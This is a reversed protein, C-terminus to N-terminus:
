PPSSAVSTNHTPSSTAYTCYFVDPIDRHPVIIVNFLGFIVFTFSLINITVMLLPSPTAVGHTGPSETTWDSPTTRTADTTSPRRRGDVGDLVLCDRGKDDEGRRPRVPGSLDSRGHGSSAIFLFLLLM